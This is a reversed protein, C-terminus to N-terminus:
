LENARLAILVEALDVLVVEGVAKVQRAEIGLHLIVLVGQVEYSIDEIEVAVIIHALSDLLRGAVKVAQYMGAVDDGCPAKRLHYASSFQQVTKPFPSYTM